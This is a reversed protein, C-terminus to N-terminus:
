DEFRENKNCIIITIMKEYIIALIQLIVRRTFKTNCYEINKTNHYM